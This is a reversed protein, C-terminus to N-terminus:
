EDSSVELVSRLRALGRDLHSQVTTVKIGLVEAVEGFTWGYGHVLVVSVRQRQTLGSLASGLSPEAWPESWDPRGHLIRLRRLRTRSRGVRFLYAVPNTLGPLRDQHEWAWAM